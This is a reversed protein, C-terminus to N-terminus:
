SLTSIAYQLVKDTCRLVQPKGNKTFVDQPPKLPGSYDEMIFSGDDLVIHLGHANNTGCNQRGTTASNMLWSFADNNKKLNDACASITQAAIHEAEMKKWKSGMFVRNHHIKKAVQLLLLNEAILEDAKLRGM